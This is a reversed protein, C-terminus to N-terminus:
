KEKSERVNERDLCKKKQERDGKLLKNQQMETGTSKFTERERGGERGGERVVIM